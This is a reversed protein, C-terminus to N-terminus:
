GKRRYVAKRRQHSSLCYKEADLLVFEVPIGFPNTISDIYACLKERDEQSIPDGNFTRVSRRGKVIDKLAAM